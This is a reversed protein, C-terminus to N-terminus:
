RQHTMLAEIAAPDSPLSTSLKVLGESTVAYDDEIRIGISESAIYIGPELTFVTGKTLVANTDPVDHVNLGIAHGIMHPFFRDLTVLMGTSDKARMRSQRLFMRAHHDVENMTTKGPVIFTECVRQTQLVVNYLERQRTTFKGSVPFTRTLDGTYYNFEAGVDFVTLEGAKMKRTSSFHHLIVSNPGSGVVCPFGERLADAKRFASVVVGEATLETMGPRIERAVSRLGSETAAIAMKLNALEETTKTARLKAVLTEAGGYVEIAKNVMRIRSALQSGPTRSINGLIRVKKAAHLSPALTAWLQQNSQITAIGSLVRTRDDPGPTVDIWEEMGPDLPPLFLIETKGTPNGDPLLALWAGPAELGTLYALNNDARFRFADGAGAPIPASLLFLTDQAMARLHARRQAYESAQVGLLSSEARPTLSAEALTASDVTRTRHTM